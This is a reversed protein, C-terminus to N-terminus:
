RERALASIAFGTAAAVTQASVTAARLRVQRRSPFL